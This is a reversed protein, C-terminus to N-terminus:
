VRKQKRKHNWVICGAIVVVIVIIIVIIKGVGIEKKVTEAQSLNQKEKNTNDDSEITDDSNGSIGGSNQGAANAVSALEKIAAKVEEPLGKGEDTNDNENEQEDNEQSNNEQSVNEKNESDTKSEEAEGDGEVSESQDTNSNPENQPTDNEGAENEAGPVTGIKVLYGDSVGQATGGNIAGIAQSAQDSTLDVDPDSLTARLDSIAAPTAAYYAGEYEFTGSAAAIVSAENGNIGGAKVQLPSAFTFLLFITGLFLLNKKM